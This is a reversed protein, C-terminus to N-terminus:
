RYADGWREGILDAAADLRVGLFDMTMADRIVESVEKFREPEIQGLVEDHIPLLLERGPVLGADVMALLSQALVDRASSQIVFNIASYLRDGDVPLQRGSATTVLRRGGSAREQLQKSYRGIAPFQRRFREIANKADNLSIGANRALADAGGGYCVLFNTAKSIKRQAKTFADGFIARATADHLDVGDAISQKMNRENAMAAAVRLEVQEYDASWLKMGPDAIVADRITHDGSPLQQLPPNSVSMRATRAQLPNISPHIYGYQDVESMPTAYSTAWKSGRRGKLVAAALPNTPALAELVAKDVKPDGSPTLLTPQWGMAMLAGAVQQRSNINLVGFAAAERRGDSEMQMLHPLLTQDIYDTDIRLGKHQMQVCVDAVEREFPYLRSNAATKIGPSLANFIRATLMTDMAAYRLYDPHDIDIRAWGESKPWGNSEFVARLTAAGLDSCDPDVFHDGLDKLGHGIGGEQRQRPDLLHAMIRTDHWEHPRLAALPMVGGIDMAIRDYAANHFILPHKKAHAALLAGLQRRDYSDWKEIQIVLSENENGLQLLRLEWDSAFQNLGTTETDVAVAGTGDLWTAIVPFFNVVHVPRDDGALRVTLTSPTM